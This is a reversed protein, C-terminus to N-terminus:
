FASRAFLQPNELVVECFKKWERENQLGLYVAKDDGSMCRGTPRSPPTAQARHAASGIRRCTYYAAYSM